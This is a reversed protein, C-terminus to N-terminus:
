IQELNYVGLLIPISRTGRSYNVHNISYSINNKELWNVYLPIRDQNWRENMINVHVSREPRTMIKNIANIKDFFEQENIHESHLSFAIAHVIKSLRKYYNVSASGNTTVTLHEINFNGSSLYEVLPLFSKNATVEGGTFCIKYPLGIHKTKQYMSDWVNKLKELDPHKSTSDHSEPPCYMCDYNCRSGIMWTITVMPIAPEVSVIKELM